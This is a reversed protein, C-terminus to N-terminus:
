GDGEADLLKYLTKRDVGLIKAAASINGKTFALVRTIYRGELENLTPLDGSLARECAVSRLRDHCLTEGVRRLRKM